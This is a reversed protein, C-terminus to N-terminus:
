IQLLTKIGKNAADQAIQAARRKGYIAHGVVNVNQDCVARVKGM